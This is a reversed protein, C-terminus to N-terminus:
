IEVKFDQYTLIQGTVINRAWFTNCTEPGFENGEKPILEWFCEYSVGQDSDEKLEKLYYRQQALTSAILGQNKTHQFYVIDHSKIKDKKKSDEYRCHQIFKWLCKSKNENIVNIRPRVPKKISPRNEFYSFGPDEPTFQAVDYPRDLIISVDTDPFNMYCDSGVHHIRLCDDYYIKNGEKEYSRHSVLHFILMSSLEKALELKFAGERIDAAKLM